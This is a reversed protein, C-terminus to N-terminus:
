NHDRSDDTTFLPLHRGDPLPEWVVTVPRDCAVANLDSTVINTTLVPGEALRVLAVAYPAPFDDPAPSRHIISFSWITANGSAPELSLQTSGCVVCVSRPYLQAHGSSCRQVMLQQDRTANWWARTDPTVPPDPRRVGTM